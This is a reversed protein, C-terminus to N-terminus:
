EDLMRYVFYQHSHLARLFTWNSNEYFKLAFWTDSFRWTKPITLNFITNLCLLNEYNQRKNQLSSIFPASHTNFTNHSVPFRRSLSSFGAGNRNSIILAIKLYLHLPNMECRCKNCFQNKGNLKGSAKSVSTWGNYLCYSWAWLVIMSQSFNNGFHLALKHFLFKIKCYSFKQWKRFIWLSKSM